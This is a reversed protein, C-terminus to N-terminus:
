EDSEFDFEFDSFCNLGYKDNVREMKEEWERHLRLQDSYKDPIDFTQSLSCQFDQPQSCQMNQAQSPQVDQTTKIFVQCKNHIKHSHAQFMKSFNNKITVM